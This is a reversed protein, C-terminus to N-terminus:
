RGGSPREKDDTQYPLRRQKNTVLLGFCALLLM